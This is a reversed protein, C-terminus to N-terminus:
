IRLSGCTNICFPVELTIARVGPPQHRAVAWRTVNRVRGVVGAILACESQGSRERRNGIYGLLM